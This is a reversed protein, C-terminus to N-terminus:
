KEWLEIRRGLPDEIWAFKGYESVTKEMEYPVGLKELHNISEEMNEVQFNLMVQQEAPFYTDEDPFFSFITQNGPQPTIISGNWEEFDIKLVDGYWKKIEELNSTRMFVGGFGKIKM